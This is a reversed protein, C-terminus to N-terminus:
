AIGAIRFRTLLAVVDSDQRSIRVPGFEGFDAVGYAADKRKFLAVARLITAEEVQEPVQSWGWRATVRLTARRGDLPWPTTLAVVQNWAFATAADANLPELQYDGADVANWASGDWTEVVVGDSSGIDDIVAVECGEPRYVRASADADLAFGATRGTWDEVARSAATVAKGLLTADLADGTDGLEARVQEATCYDTRM